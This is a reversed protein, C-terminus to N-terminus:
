QEDTADYFELGRYEAIADEIKKVDQDTLSKSSPGLVVVTGCYCGYNLESWLGLLSLAGGALYNTAMDPKILSNAGVYVTLIIERNPKFIAKQISDGIIENLSEIDGTGYVFEYWNYLGNKNKKKSASFICMRKTQEKVRALSLSTLPTTTIASTTTMATTTATVITTNTTYTDNNTPECTRKRKRSPEKTSMPFQFPQLYILQM